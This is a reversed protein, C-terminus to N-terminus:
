ALSSPPPLQLAFDVRMVPEFGIDDGNWMWWVNGYGPRAMKEDHRRQLENAIRQRKRDSGTRRHEAYLEATSALHLKM